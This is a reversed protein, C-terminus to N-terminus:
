SNTVLYTELCKAVFLCEIELRFWNNIKTKIILLYIRNCVFTTHMRFAYYTFTYLENLFWLTFWSLIKKRLAVFCLVVWCLLACCLVPCCLMAYCLVACCLVTFVICFLEFSYFCSHVVCHFSFLCLVSVWKIMQWMSACSIELDKAWIQWCFTGLLM